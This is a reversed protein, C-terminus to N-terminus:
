MLVRIIEMESLRGRTSSSSIKLDCLVRPSLSPLSSLPGLISWFCCLFPFCNGWDSFPDSNGPVQPRSPTRPLDRERLSATGRGEFSIHAKSVRMVFFSQVEPQKEDKSINKAMCSGWSKGMVRALPGLIGSVSNGLLESGDLSLNFKFLYFAMRACRSSYPLIGVHKM